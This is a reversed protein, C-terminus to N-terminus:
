IAVGTRDRSGTERVDVRHRIVEDAVGSEPKCLQHESPNARYVYVIDCLSLEGVSPLPSSRGSVTPM